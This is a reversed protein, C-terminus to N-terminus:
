DIIKRKKNVNKHNTYSVAYEISPQDFSINPIAGSSANYAIILKLDAARKELNVWLLLNFLSTKINALEENLLDREKELQVLKQTY